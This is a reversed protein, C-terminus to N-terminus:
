RGGKKVGWCLEGEKRSERTRVCSPLGEEESRPWVGGGGKRSM